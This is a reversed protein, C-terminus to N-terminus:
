LLKARLSGGDSPSYLSPPIDLMTRCGCERSRHLRVAARACAILIGATFEPNSALSVQLEMSQAAAADGATRCIVYGGHPLEAHEARLEALSVFHVETAYGSFYGPISRIAAELAARDTDPKVALYCIRKHTQQPPRATCGSRAADLAEPLPVTYQRADLVGPLRRLADSHGQSVGPGWFTSLQAQPLFASGFLRMLSFLGPDWGASVICLTRNQRAATDVAAFHEPILAHTDFSDVVCFRAALVATTHPLDAASGGCNIIVDTDPAKEELQEPSFFSASFSPPETRCLQTARRTCIGYLAMDDTGAIKQCVARGLNGYGYVTVRIMTM